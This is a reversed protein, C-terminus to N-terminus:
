FPINRRMCAVFTGEGSNAFGGADRGLCLGNSLVCARGCSLHIKGVIVGDAAAVDSRRICDERSAASVCRLWPGQGRSGVFLM